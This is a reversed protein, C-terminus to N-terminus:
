SKEAIKKLRTMEQYIRDRVEELLSNNIRKGM